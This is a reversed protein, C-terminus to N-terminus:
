HSVEKAFYEILAVLLAKARIPSIYLEKIEWQAVRKVRGEVPLPYIVLVDAKKDPEIKFMAVM